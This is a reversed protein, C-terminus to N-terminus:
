LGLQPGRDPGDDDRGADPGSGPSRNAAERGDDEPADIKVQEAHKAFAFLVESEQLCFGVFQM